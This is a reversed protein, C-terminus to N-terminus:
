ARAVKPPILWRVTMGGPRPEGELCAVAGKKLEFSGGGAAGTVLWALLASLMPEHGVLAVREGVCAELLAKSPAGVLHNTVEFPGDVLTHLREATQVARLKPSHLVRDFRVGLAELLAVMADFRRGGKKTLARADDDDGDEAIAHRILFLEM